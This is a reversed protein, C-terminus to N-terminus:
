RAGDEPDALSRTYLVVMRINHRHLTHRWHDLVDIVLEDGNPKTGLLLWPDHLRLADDVLGLFDQWGAADIYSFPHAEIRGIETFTLRYSM